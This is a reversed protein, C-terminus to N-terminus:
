DCKQSGYPHRSSKLAPTGTPGRPGKPPDYALPKVSPKGGGSTGFNGQGRAANAMPQNKIPFAM